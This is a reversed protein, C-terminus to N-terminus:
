WVAPAWGVSAGLAIRVTPRWAMGLGLAIQLRRRWDPVAVAGRAAGLRGTDGSAALGGTAVAAADGVTPMERVTM